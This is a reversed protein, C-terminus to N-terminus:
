KPRYIVVSNSRITEVQGDKSKRDVTIYFEIVDGPEALFRSGLQRHLASRQNMLYHKDTDTGVVFQSGERDVRVKDPDRLIWAVTYAAEPAPAQLRRGSDNFLYVDFLAYGEPALTPATPALILRLDGALSFHSAGVILLVASFFLRKKM